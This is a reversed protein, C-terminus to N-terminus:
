GKAVIVRAPRIVRDSLLYGKQFVTIVTNPATDPAPQMTMAEHKNPDFVEGVPNLQVVKFKELVDLLLKLTLEVGELMAGVTSDVAQEETVQMAQELSDIIPLLEKILKEPGFKLANAVERESRRRVNELEAVARVVKEAENEARQETETLQQQLAQYDPDELLGEPLEVQSDDTSAETEADSKKNLAEWKNELPEEVNVKDVKTDDNM